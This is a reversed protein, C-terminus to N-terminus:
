TVASQGVGREPFLFLKMAPFLMAYAFINYVASIRARKDMDNISDRLVMYALYILLAIAAGILIKGLHILQPSPM